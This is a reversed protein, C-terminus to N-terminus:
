YMVGGIDLKLVGIEEVVNTGDILISTEGTMVGIGDIVHATGDILIGSGDIHLKTCCNQANTYSTGDIVVNVQSM